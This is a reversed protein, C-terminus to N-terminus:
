SFSWSGDAKKCAQGAGRQARGDLYITHNYVRCGGIGDAGPEVYGYSTTEGRWSMRRGTEAADVQAKFGRERDSESLSAAVPGAVFGSIVQVTPGAAPASAVPADTSGFCGGLSLALVLSGTLKCFSSKCYMDFDVGPTSM